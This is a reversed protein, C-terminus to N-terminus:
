RRSNPRRLGRRLALSALALLGLLAIASAPAIWASEPPAQAPLAASPEGVVARAADPTLVVFEFDQDLDFLLEVSREDEPMRAFARWELALSGPERALEARWDFEISPLPNDPGFEAFRAVDTVEGRAPAGDLEIKWAAELAPPLARELDELSLEARLGLSAELVAREATGHVHLRGETVRAHLLIPPGVHAPHPARHPM